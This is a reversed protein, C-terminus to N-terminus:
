GFNENVKDLGEVMVLLLAFGSPALVLPAPGSQAPCNKALLCIEGAPKGSMTNVAGEDTNEINAANGSTGAGSSVSWAATLWEL